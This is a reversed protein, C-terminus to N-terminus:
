EIVRVSVPDGTKFLLSREIVGPHTQIHLANAWRFLLKDEEPDETDFIERVEIQIKGIRAGAAELEAFSPLPAQAPEAVAVTRLLALALVLGRALGAVLSRL